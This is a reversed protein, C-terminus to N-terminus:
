LITLLIRRGHEVQQSHGCPCPLLEVAVDTNTIDGDGGLSVCVLRSKNFVSVGRFCMIDVVAAWLVTKEREDM